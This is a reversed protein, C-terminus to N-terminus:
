KVLREPNKWVEYWSQFMLVTWLFYHCEEKGSLHAAWKKRIFAPEFFGEQKLRGKNLLSEAWDRLPGRLWLDIPVGFGMKPRNFLPEPVYKKLIRRLLMKGTKGQINMSLPLRWVYEALRHDLFPVRAELGVAMSARDVKTLIDDPLYTSTDIYMLRQFLSAATIWQGPDSFITSPEVGSLVVESPHNLHSIMERYMIEEGEVALIESLRALKHSLPLPLAAIHAIYKLSKAAIRRPVKPIFSAYRCIREAIFYRPYGCFLEDGGDGSLSVTVEKRALKSVLYTPIQSSDSFPEDYIAPLLPIVDMAEQPTVWLESHQTGLAAAIARAQKTEDYKEEQFGITFTKVPRGCEAQMLAVITSSDIGGSLFAGLPVDAMMRLKVADKLLVEVHEAAEEESDNVFHRIGAEAIKRFSWYCTPGGMLQQDFISIHQFSAAPLKYIGTYISHPAPIYNHRLYLTLADRNMERKFNPHATLSKLESGFLFTSGSWGYYLPKEGFRDRALSLRQVERDWLALAFMGNCKQLAEEFGWQCIAALLVETDSRSRFRSGLCVLEDRLIEYNYIEGNFVLVYRGCLSFMPQHGETSLDIVALRRHGLAVGLKPDVWVGQSDPGRQVLSDTMRSIIRPLEHRPTEQSLDFFGTIGCM